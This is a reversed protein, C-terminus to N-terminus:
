NLEVKSTLKAQCHDLKIKLFKNDTKYKLNGIKVKNLEKVPEEHKLKEAEANKIVEQVKALTAKNIKADKIAQCKEAFMKTQGDEKIRLSQSMTDLVSKFHLAYSNSWEEFVSAQGGPHGSLMDHTWQRMGAEDIIVPLQM